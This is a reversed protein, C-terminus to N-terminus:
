VPSVKPVALRPHQPITVTTLLMVYELRIELSNLNIRFDMLKAVHLLFSRGQTRNKIRIESTKVRIRSKSTMIKLSMELVTEIRQM